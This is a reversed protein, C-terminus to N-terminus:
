VAHSQLWQSGGWPLPAFPLQGISYSVSQVYVEDDQRELEMIMRDVRSQQVQALPLNFYPNPQEATGPWRALDALAAEMLVDGRIYVPLTANPDDLDPPRSEYMFPYVYATQNHPWLEFRPLGTTTQPTAQIIFIDGAGFVLGVPWYIAVGNSLTNGVIGDTVISGSFPGGNFSWTFTATGAQGGTGVQIAYVGSAPAVYNSNGAIAPSAGSGIIHLPPSVTGQYGTAYDRFSVVYAQQFNARQADYANIMRQDVNLNLQWNYLPDWLTTFAHFDAPAQFYCQYIQYAVGSLNNISAWPQNLLLQTTSLVQQIDYIPAVQGIRFQQGVMAQTWTTGVGTVFTSGINVSVTGANYLQPVIFQGPKILWSWRASEAIRRFANKVLNQALVPGASPCRTLVAGWIDPYQDVM